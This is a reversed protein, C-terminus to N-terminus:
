LREDNASSKVLDRLLKVVILLQMSTKLFVSFIFQIAQDDAEIKKLEKETLEDNTQVHFTENVPVDQNTDGLEPIMR